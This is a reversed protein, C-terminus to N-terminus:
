ESGEGDCSKRQSGRGVVWVGTGEGMKGDSSVEGMESIYAM